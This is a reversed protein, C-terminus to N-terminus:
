TDSKIKHLVWFVALLINCLMPFMFMIVFVVVLYDLLTM